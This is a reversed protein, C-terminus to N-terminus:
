PKRGYRIEYIADMIDEETINEQKSREREVEAKREFEERARLRLAVNLEEAESENLQNIQAMIANVRSSM